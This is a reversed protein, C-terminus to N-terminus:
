IDIQLYKTILHLRKESIEHSEKRPVFFHFPTQKDDLLFIFPMNLEEIPIHLSNVSYFSTADFGNSRAFVYLDRVRYGTTFFLVRVNLQREIIASKILSLVYNVCDSCNSSSIYVVICPSKLSISDMTTKNGKLDKLITTDHIACGENEFLLEQEQQLISYHYNTQALNREHSLKEHKSMVLFYISTVLIAALLLIVPITITKSLM